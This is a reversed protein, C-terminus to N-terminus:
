RSCLLLPHRTWSSAPPSLRGLILAVVTLALALLFVDM